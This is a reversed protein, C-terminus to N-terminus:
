SSQIAARHRLNLRAFDLILRATILVGGPLAKSSQFDKEASITWGTAAHRYWGSRYGTCYLCSCCEQRQGAFDTLVDEESCQLWRYNTCPAKGKAPYEFPRVGSTKAQSYSFPLIVARWGVLQNAHKHLNMWLKHIVHLPYILLPSATEAFLSSRPLQLITFFNVRIACCHIFRGGCFAESTSHVHLWISRRLQHASLVLIQFDDSYACPQPKVAIFLGIHYALV